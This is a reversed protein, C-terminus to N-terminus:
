ASRRYAIGLRCGADSEMLVLVPTCDERVPRAVVFSEGCGPCDRSQGLLQVPAKIRANCGPCRFQIATTNM